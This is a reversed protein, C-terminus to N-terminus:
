IANKLVILEYNNENNLNQFYQLIEEESEFLSDEIPQFERVIYFGKKKCDEEPKIYEISYIVGDFIKIKKISM